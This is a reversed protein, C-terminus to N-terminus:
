VQISGQPLRPARHGVLLRDNDVLAVDLAKCTECRGWLSHLDHCLLCIAANVVLKNDDVILAASPIRKHPEAPFPCIATGLCGKLKCACEGAGLELCSLSPGLTDTSRDCGAQGHFRLSLLGGSGGFVWSPQEYKGRM